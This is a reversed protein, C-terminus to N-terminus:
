SNNISRRESHKYFVSTGCAMNHMFQVILDKNLKIQDYEHM